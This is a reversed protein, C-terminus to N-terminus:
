NSLLIHKYLFFFFFFVGYMSWISPSHQALTPSPPGVNMWYQTLTDHKSPYFTSWSQALM